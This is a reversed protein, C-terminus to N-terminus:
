KSLYQDVIQALHQIDKKIIQKDLSSGTKLYIIKGNEDIVMTTPFGTNCNLRYCESESICFVTYPLHYKEISLKTEEPSDRTFSFFQFKENSNFKVFLENLAEFEAICPSCLEFWFNVVTIKCQLNKESFKQGKISLANFSMFDKGINQQSIFELENFESNVRASSNSVSQSLVNFSIVISIILFVSKM